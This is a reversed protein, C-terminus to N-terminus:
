QFINEGSPRQTKAQKMPFEPHTRHRLNKQETAFESGAVTPPQIGKNKPIDNLNSMSTQWVEEEPRNEM